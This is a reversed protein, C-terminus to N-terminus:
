VPAGRPVPGLLDTSRAGFGAVWARHKVAHVVPRVAFPLGTGRVSTRPADSDSAVVTRAAYQEARSSALGTAPTQMAHQSTTDM